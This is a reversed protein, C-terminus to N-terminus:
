MLKKYNDRYIQYVVETRYANWVKTYAAQCMEDAEQTHAQCWEIAEQISKASKPEVLLGCKKGDMSTLMDPIAARPCSIVMKTKSMAELISIPFAEWPYYTPLAVIDIDAMFKVAEENPLKGHMFIARDIKDGAIQKIRDIVDSTGPGIIDLRVECRTCAEVLDFVGKTPILNGIFGVRKYSKPINDIPATVEISNPTLFVKDKLHPYQLLFDYTRRDLVWIQDYLEFSKRLLIGVLGKRVYDEPICGYRNHIICKVGAKKSLKAVVIDRLSGISGSSTTHLIDPSESILKHKTEAYINKLAKFGSIVRKFLGETGIRVGPTTDIISIDYQEDPFTRIYKRSWSSIGGNGTIPFLGLIKIM